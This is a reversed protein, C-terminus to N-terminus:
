RLCIRQQDYGSVPNRGIIMYDDMDKKDGKRSWILGIVFVIVIIIVIIVVVTLTTSTSSDMTKMM